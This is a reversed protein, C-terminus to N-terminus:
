KMVNQVHSMVEDDEQPWLVCTTIAMTGIQFWWFFNKNWFINEGHCKSYTAFDSLEDCVRTTIAMTGIQFWWFFKKNFFINNWSM